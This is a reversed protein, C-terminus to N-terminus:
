PISVTDSFDKGLTFGWNTVWYLNTLGSIMYMGTVSTIYWALRM